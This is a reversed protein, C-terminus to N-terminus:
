GGALMPTGEWAKLTGFVFPLEIKHCAQFPSMPPAWHFLSVYPSSGRVAMADAFQMMPRYVPQPPNPVSAAPTSIAHAELRLLSRLSVSLLYSQSGGNGPSLLRRIRHDHRAIYLWVPESAAPSREVSALVAREQHPLPCPHRRKDEMPGTIAREVDALASVESLM